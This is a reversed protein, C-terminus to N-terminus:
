HAHPSSDQKAIRYNDRIVESLLHGQKYRESSVNHISPMALAHNHVKVSVEGQKWVGKTIFDCKVPFHQLRSEMEM